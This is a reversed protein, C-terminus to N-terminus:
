RKNIEKSTEAGIVVVCRTLRSHFVTLADGARGFYLLWSCVARDMSGIVPSCFFFVRTPGSNGLVVGIYSRLEPVSRKQCHQAYSPAFPADNPLRVACEKSGKVQRERAFTLPTRLASDTRIPSAMVSGPRQHSRQAAFGRGGALTRKPNQHSVCVCM